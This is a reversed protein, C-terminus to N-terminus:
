KDQFTLAGNTNGLSLYLVQVMSPLMMAWQSVSKTQIRIQGPLTLTQIEM